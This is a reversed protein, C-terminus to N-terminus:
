RKIATVAKSIVTSAATPVQHESVDPPRWSRRRWAISDRHQRQLVDVAIEADIIKAEGQGVFYGIRKGVGAAQVNARRGDGSFVRARIEIGLLDAFLKM